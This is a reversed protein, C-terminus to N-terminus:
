KLLSAAKADGLGFREAAGLMSILRQRQEGDAVGVLKGLLASVSLNKVDETTVGVHLYVGTSPRPPGLSPRRSDATPAQSQGVMTDEAEFENEESPAGAAALALGDLDTSQEAPAQEGGTEAAPAAPAACGMLLAAVTLIALVLQMIRPM